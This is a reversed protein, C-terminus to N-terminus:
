RRWSCWRCSSSSASGCCARAAAAPLGDLSRQKAEPAAPAPELEPDGAVQALASLPDGPRRAAPRSPSNVRGGRACRVRPRPELDALGRRRTAPRAARRRPEARLLELDRREAHRVLYSTAVGLFSVDRVVGKVDNGAGEPRKRSVTVKEPRVGFLVDGEHVQSRSRLIKVPTGLVDAVLHDGDVDKITGVGTNAQGLFNAVFRTRPLDYLTARTRRAARHPGQEDGRRHRGHDHGGGPRPHRPHLHPGGRDPHAQARGADRPAAQPRPRRAARRAAAGGPPQGPGPGAGGAAAARRLAAGAQAGAFPSM